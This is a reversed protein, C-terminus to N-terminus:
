RKMRVGIRRYDDVVEGDANVLAARILGGSVRDFIDVDGDVLAPEYFRGWQALAIIAPLLAVGKRRLRYEFRTRQGDERYPVKRLIEADVLKALRDALITRSLGLEKQMVDFRTVGFFMERLILLSPRDGIVEVANILACCEPPVHDIDARVPAASAANEVPETMAKM